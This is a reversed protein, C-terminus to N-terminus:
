DENGQLNYTEKVKENYNPVHEVYDDIVDVLQDFYISSLTHRVNESNIFTVDFLDMGENYVIEIKGQFKFGNVYSSLGNKITIPKQFGWSMIVIIRSSLIKYIYQAMEIDEINQNEMININQL